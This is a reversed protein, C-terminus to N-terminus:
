TELGLLHKEQRTGFPHVGLQGYCVHLALVLHLDNCVASMDDLFVLRGSKALFDLVENSPMAHRDLEIFPWENDCGASLFHVDTM